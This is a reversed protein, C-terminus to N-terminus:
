LVAGVSVLRAARAELKTRSAIRGCLTKKQQHELMPIRNGLVPTQKSSTNNHPHASRSICTHSQCRSIILRTDPFFPFAVSIDISHKERIRVYQVRDLCGESSPNESFIKVKSFRLKKSVFDKKTRKGDLKVMSANTVDPGGAPGARSSWSARVDTLDHRKPWSPQNPSQAWRM